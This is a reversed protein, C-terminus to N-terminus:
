RRGGKRSKNGKTKKGKTKSTKATSAAGRAETLRDEIQDLLDDAIPIWTDYWQNWQGEEAKDGGILLAGRRESDFAFLVRLVTEACKTPRLEKMKHHRSGHVRDVIPRGLAPGHEELLEIAALVADQQEDTLGAIWREIQEGAAYVEWPM